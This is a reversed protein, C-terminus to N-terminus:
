GRMVERTDSHLQADMILAFQRMMYIFVLSLLLSVSFVFVTLVILILFNEM